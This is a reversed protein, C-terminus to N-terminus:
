ALAKKSDRQTLTPEPGTSALARAVDTPLVLGVCHGSADIVLAEPAGRLVLLEVASGFPADARVCFVASSMVSGASATASVTPHEILARVLDPARVVGLPRGSDVVVIPEGSAAAVAHAVDTLSATPPLCRVRRRAIEGITRRRPLEGLSAEPPLAPETDFM